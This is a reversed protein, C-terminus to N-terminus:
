ASERAAQYVPCSSWSSPDQFTSELISNAPPELPGDPERSDHTMVASPLQADHEHTDAELEDSFHSSIGCLSSRCPQLQESYDNRCQMAFEPSQTTLAYRVLRLQEMTSCFYRALRCLCALPQTRGHLCKTFFCYNTLPFSLQEPRWTVKRLYSESTNRRLLDSAPFRIDHLWKQRSEARLFLVCHSGFTRSRLVLLKSSAWSSM